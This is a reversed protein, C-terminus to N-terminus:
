PYEKVSNPLKAVAELKDTTLGVVAYKHSALLKVAFEHTVAWEFWAYDIRTANDDKTRNDREIFLHPRVYQMPKFRDGAETASLQLQFENDGLKVDMRWLDVGDEVGDHYWQHEGDGVNPKSFVFSPPEGAAKEIVSKPNDVKYVADPGYRQLKNYLTKLSVGLEAATAKKDHQHKAYVWLIHSEETEALTPAPEGDPEADFPVVKAPGVQEGMHQDWGGLYHLFRHMKEIFEGSTEPTTDEDGHCHFLDHLERATQAVHRCIVMAVLPNWGCTQATHGSDTCIECYGGGDQKRADTVARLAKDYEIPTFM